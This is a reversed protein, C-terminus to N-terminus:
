TAYGFAASTSPCPNCCMGSDKGNTSKARARGCRLLRYEVTLAVSRVGFCFNCAAANERAM